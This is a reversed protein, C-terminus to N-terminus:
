FPVNLNEEDAGAADAATHDVPPEDEHQAQPAPAGGGAKGAQTPASTRAFYEKLFAQLEVDLKKAALDSEPTIDCLDFVPPYFEVDGSVDQDGCGISFGKQDLAKRNANQFDIWPGLACGSIQIAGISLKDGDKYAIYVNKAFSGNVRKSTVTDKIDNWLGSAVPKKDNFFKVTLPHTGTGRDPIENAFVGSKQVKSYGRVTCTQELMICRFPKKKVDIEVRCGETGDEAKKDKDWYSLAGPGGKWELWLKCPHHNESTPNSRSM